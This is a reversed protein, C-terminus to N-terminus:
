SIMKFLEHRVVSVAGNVVKISYDIKKIKIYEDKFEFIYNRISGLINDRLDFLDGTLYINKIGLLCSLNYIERSIEVIMENLYQNLIQNNNQLEFILEKKTLKINEDKYYRKIIGNISCRNALTEIEGDINRPNIGGFKDKIDNNENILIGNLFISSMIKYNGYIVLFNDAPYKSNQIYEGVLDIEDKIILDINYKDCFEEIDDCLKSLLSNNIPNKNDIVEPVSLICNTMTKETNIKKVIRELIMNIENISDIKVESDFIVENKLNFFSIRFHEDKLNIVLFSLFNPNIDLLTSKKGLSNNGKGTEILVQEELLEQSNKSITTKTLDLVNALDSRSIKGNKLIYRIIDKKNKAKIMSQPVSKKKKM